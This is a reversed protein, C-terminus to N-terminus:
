LAATHSADRGLLWGRYLAMSLFSAPPIFCCLDGSLRRSVDKLMLGLMISFIGVTDLSRINFPL